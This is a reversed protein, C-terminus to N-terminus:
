FVGDFLDIQEPMEEAAKCNKKAQEFYSKKLEIGVGKRKLLISQYVESGIGLFPTFVKDGENTWLKICREIVSLQLPAIHKEDREDRASQRQLTDGPVIDLWVPESYRKEFPVIEDGGDWVPSAYEQWIDVPFTENTHTVPEENIGPKRFTIIYDALGQRSMASDKKIQKHLLGLAKTRQMAQVPDKWITVRSHYIFGVEQMLRINEGSFDSIGIFGDKWKSTTLDMCHISVLRGPKIVRYLEKLILRYQDYFDEKNKANSLDRESDSFVYLEAFPPSFISFDMSNDPLGRMVETSDGNYIMFNQGKFQDLVKM